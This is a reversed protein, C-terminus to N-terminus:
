VPITRWVSEPEVNLAAVAGTLQARMENADALFPHVMMFLRM